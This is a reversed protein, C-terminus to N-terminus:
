SLTFPCPIVRKIARKLRNWIPSRQAKSGLFFREFAARAESNEVPQLPVLRIPRKALETGCRVATGCHTGSGDLGINDVLSRGPYLTLREQLFASTFWRIAWSDIKGAIQARLMECYNVTGNFDCERTLGRLELEKLLMAADPEFLDWGRKWTAWGWCDAGRIFFTEPLPEQVPFVYGHICIVEPTEEYADLADNM